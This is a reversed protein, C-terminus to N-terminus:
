AVINDAFAALFDEPVRVPRGTDINIWVYQSHVQAMLEGDSVRRIFYHRVGTARRMNFAWTSVELEDNMVAQQRYEIRHRRTVIGLNIAKMRAFPWDFARCVELGCEEAYNLYVSNNVHQAPDIDRWEVRRRMKFVHKPPPPPEPFKERPQAQEPAGEPYFAAVMEPPIQAPRFTTKDLYAWDTTARAALEGTAANRLEYARISRVRRFDVVWSKVEVSQGYTLPTLYEVDTERALWIRNMSDYRTVDYGAAATADFATEQMYRLYNVSNVHGYGDCEYHRIRFTRTQILPM